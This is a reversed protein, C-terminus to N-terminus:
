HEVIILNFTTAISKKYVDLTGLPHDWHNQHDGITERTGGDPWAM